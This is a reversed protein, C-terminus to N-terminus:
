EFLNIVILKKDVIITNIEFGRAFVISSIMNQFSQLVEENFYNSANTNIARYLHRVVNPVAIWPADTDVKYFLLERLVKMMAYIRTLEVLDVFVDWRTIGQANKPQNVATGFNFAAQIMPQCWEVDTGDLWLCDVEAPYKFSDLENMIETLITHMDPGDYDDAVVLNKLASRNYQDNDTTDIPADKSYVSEYNANVLGLVRLAFPRMHWLVDEKNRIVTPKYTTM